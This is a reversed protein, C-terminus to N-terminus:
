GLMHIFGPFKDSKVYVSCLFTLSIQCYRSKFALILALERFQMFCRSFKLIDKVNKHVLHAMNM